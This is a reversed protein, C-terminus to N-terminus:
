VACVGGGPKLGECREVPRPSERYDTSRGMAMLGWLGVGCAPAGVGGGPQCDRAKITRLGYGKGLSTTRAAVWPICGVSGLTAPLLVM